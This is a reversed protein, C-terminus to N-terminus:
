KRLFKLLSFEHYIRLILACASCLLDLNLLFSFVKELNLNPLMRTRLKKLEKNSHLDEFVRKCDHCSALEAFTNLVSFITGITTGPNDIPDELEFALEDKVGNGCSM